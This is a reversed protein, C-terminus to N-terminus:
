QPFIELCEYHRPNVLEAIPLEIEFYKRFLHDGGVRFRAASNYLLDRRERRKRKKEREEGGVNREAM